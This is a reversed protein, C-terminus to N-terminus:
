SGGMGTMLPKFQNMYAPYKVLADQSSIHSIPQTLSSITGHPLSNYDMTISANEPLATPPVLQQKGGKAHFLKYRHESLGGRYVRYDRGMPDSDTKVFAKPDVHQCVADSALSGGKRTNNKIKHKTKSNVQAKSSKSKNKTKDDHREQCQTSEKLTSFFTKLKSFLDPEQPPPETKKKRQKSM